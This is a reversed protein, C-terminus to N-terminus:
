FPRNSLKILHLHTQLGRVLWTASKCHAVMNHTKLQGRPNKSVNGMAGLSALIKKLYNYNCDRFIILCQCVFCGSSAKFQWNYRMFDFYGKTRVPIKTECNKITKRIPKLVSKILNYFLDIKELTWM